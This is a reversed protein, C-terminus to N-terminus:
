VAQVRPTAGKASLLLMWFMPGLSAEDIIVKSSVKPRNHGMHHSCWAEEGTSNVPYRCTVMEIEPQYMDPVPCMTVGFVDRIHVKLWM